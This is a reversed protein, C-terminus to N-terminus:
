AARRMEGGEQYEWGRRVGDRYRNWDRDDYTERWDRELQTELQQDWSRYKSAYQGRAGFGFRYADETEEYTPQGRPPIPQDGAAQKITDGVDQDTDPKKGGFDHKTQDWDRKFAMKVREWASEHEKSWWKPNRRKKM